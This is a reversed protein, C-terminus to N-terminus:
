ADKGSFRDILFASLFKLMLASLSFCAAGACL